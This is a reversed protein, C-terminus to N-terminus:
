GDNGGRCGPNDGTQFTKISVVRFPSTSLKNRVHEVLAKMTLDSDQPIEVEIRVVVGGKLVEVVVPAEKVAAKAVQSANYRDLVPGMEDLGAVWYGGGKTRHLLQKAEFWTHAVVYEFEGTKPDKIPLGDRLVLWKIEGSPAQFKDDM